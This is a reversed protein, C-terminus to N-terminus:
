KGNKALITPSMAKGSKLSDSLRGNKESQNENKIPKM